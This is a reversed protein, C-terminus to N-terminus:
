KEVESKPDDQCDKCDGCDKEKGKQCFFDGPVFYKLENCYGDIDRYRCKECRVLKICAIKQKFEYQNTSPFDSQEVPYLKFICEEKQLLEEVVKTALEYQMLKVIRSILGEPNNDTEFMEKPILQVSNLIM